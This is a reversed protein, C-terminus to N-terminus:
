KLSRKQLGKGFFEFVAEGRTKWTPLHRFVLIYRVILALNFLLLVLYGALIFFSLHILSNFCVIKEKEPRGKNCYFLGEIFKVDLIEQLMWLCWVIIAVALSGLLLNLALHGVLIVLYISSHEEFLQMKVADSFYEFDPAKLKMLFGRQTRLALFPVLLLVINILTLAAKIPGLYHLILQGCATEVRDMGVNFIQPPSMCTSRHEFLFPLQVLFLISFSTLIKWNFASFVTMSAIPVTISSEPVYRVPPNLFVPEKKSLCGDSETPATALNPPKSGLTQVLNSPNSGM